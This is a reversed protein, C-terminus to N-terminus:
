KENSIYPIYNFQDADETMLLLSFASSWSFHRADLGHGDASSYSERIAFGPDAIGKFKEPIQRTLQEAETFGYNKFGRIGFYTYNM